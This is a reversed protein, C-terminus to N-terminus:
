SINGPHHCFPCGYFGNFNKMDLIMASAPADCLIGYLNIHYKFTVNNIKLSLGSSKLSNLEQILNPFLQEAKPKKGKWVGAVIKNNISQRLTPPLEVISLLIPWLSTNKRLSIGDTCLILNIAIEQKSNENVKKYYFSDILDVYNREKNIYSMIESNYKFLIATLQPKIQISNFEDCNSIVKNNYACRNNLCKYNADLKEKCHVCFAEKNIHINHSLSNEYLKNYTNPLINDLPM